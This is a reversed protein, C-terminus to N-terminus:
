PRNVVIVLFILITLDTSTISDTLEFVTDNFM